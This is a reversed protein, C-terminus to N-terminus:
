EHIEERKGIRFQSAPHITLSGSRSHIGIQCGNPRGSSIDSSLRMTQLHYRVRLSDGDTRAYAVAM